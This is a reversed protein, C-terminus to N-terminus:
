WVRSTEKSEKAQQIAALHRRGELTAPNPKGTADMWAPRLARRVTVGRPEPIDGDMIALAYIAQVYADGRDPSRGLRDKIDKKPEVLMRSGRFLYTPATLQITLQYDDHDLGIRRTQFWRGCTDWMEARVNVYQDPKAAQAAYDVFWVTEGMEVLRDGVPGGMGTADIIIPVDGADGMLRRVDIAHGVAQMGDEQGHYSEHVIQTRDLGYIVTEDDGFRAPDISVLPRAGLHPFGRGIADKIWAEKIIQAEGEFAYWDGDLMARLMEPRHAYSSRLRDVYGEPLHENDTPLAPVFFRGPEPAEIFAERLWCPAPNATFLGTYMWSPPEQGKITQRLSGRLHQIEDQNIEEAQDLFFFVYEASQFASTDDNRDCAGYRLKVRERVIIEKKSENIRWVQIGGGHQPVMKKWTELTSTQLDSYQRRGIFGVAPPTDTPKLDFHKIIEEAMLYCWLCGLVSKGGGKAGGYMLERVDERRLMTYAQSQKRSLSLTISPTPTPAPATAVM